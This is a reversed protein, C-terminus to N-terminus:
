HKGETNAQDPLYSEGAWIGEQSQLNRCIFFGAATFYQLRIM